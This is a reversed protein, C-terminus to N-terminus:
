SSPGISPASRYCAEVLAMTGLNDRGSIEPLSATELACLLEAMPGVFADPFWVENWRPKFWVPGLARTTYDLTSPTRQPYDPWGITGRALGETGEVRWRIGIDEAAGESAPGAWVDDCAAARLGNAYELIYLCIGDEHAFTEATRPDPRVSAFM